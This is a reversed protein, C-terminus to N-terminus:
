KTRATLYLAMFMLWLGFVGTGDGGEEVAWMQVPQRAPTGAGRVVVVLIIVNLPKVLLNLFQVLLGEDLHGIEGSKPDPHEAILLILLM